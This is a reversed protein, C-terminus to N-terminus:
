SAPRDGPNHARHRGIRVRSLRHNSGQTIELLIRRVDGERQSLKAALASRMEATLHAQSITGQLLHQV